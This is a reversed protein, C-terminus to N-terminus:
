PTGSPGAAPGASPAASPGAVSTGAAPGATGTVAADNRVALLVNSENRRWRYGYAFDIPTARRFLEQLKPQYTRPFIGLPALYHGFPQLQWKKDDFHALPIGSDDELITASNAILFDRIKSFNGSHMLYSASKILSDGPGLKELFTLLGSTPVGDNALNTSFYYLTRDKGDAGTFLIKVGHAASRQGPAEPRENGDADLNVLSVEKVTKGSRALFVYLIPITGNLRGSSLQTRMNHTIFFSLSLVTHMSSALTNLSPGLSGRPMKLLDPIQGPPELGALVYTTADPFFADAYLFDPGSFMYFMSPRNVRLYTKSWARVKSLQTRDFEGFARDFFRAHQKWSEDRTLPELPSGASPPLGAIVRVTDAVEAGQATIAGTIDIQAPPRAPATRAPAPRPGPEGFGFFDFSAAPLSSLLVLSAAASITKSIRTM